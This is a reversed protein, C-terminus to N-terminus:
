KFIAELWNVVDKWFSFLLIFGIAFSVSASILVPHKEIFSKKSDDKKNKDPQMQHGINSKNIKNNNGIKIKM